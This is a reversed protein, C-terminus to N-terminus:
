PKGDHCWKCMHLCIRDVLANYREVPCIYCVIHHVSHGPAAAASSHKTNPTCQHM